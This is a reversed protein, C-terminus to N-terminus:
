ADVNVRRYDDVSQANGRMVHVRAALHVVTRVSVLLDTWDTEGSLDRTRGCEVGLPLPVAARRIAARVPIDEAAAQNLLAQGVFGSAGTVLVKGEDIVRGEVIVGRGASIAQRAVVSQRFRVLRSIPAVRAVEPRAM